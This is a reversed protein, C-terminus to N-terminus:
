QDKRQSRYRLGRTQTMPVGLKAASDASVDRDVVPTGQPYDKPDYHRVITEVGAEQFQPEMFEGPIPNLPVVPTPPVSVQEIIPLGHQVRDINPNDLQVDRELGIVASEEPEPKLPAEGEIVSLNDIDPGAKTRSHLETVPHPYGLHFTAHLTFAVRTYAVGPLFAYDRELMAAFEQLAIAKVEAGNLRKNPLKDQPMKDKGNIRKPMWTFKAIGVSGAPSRRNKFELTRQEFSADGDLSLPWQAAISMWNRSGIGRKRCFTDTNSNRSRAM